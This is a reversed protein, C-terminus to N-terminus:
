EFRMNAIGATVVQYEPPSDAFIMGVSSQDFHIKGVPTYHLEFILDSGAPIKKASGPPFISPIDGPAYAALHQRKQGTHDDLYVIIHHVVARDGPRPEIARVWRDETFHTKVQFHQYPLTGDAKVTYPEPMTFVVDPTGITWGDPWAKPAPEKSPDGQPAGQDAWAILTAREQPSLHRDNSFHGFRPDAHWPPMRRDEVVERISVAWRRADDYTRLSFPAVQGPRHCSQCRKQIIPAVQESYTVASLSDPDIPPELRDYTEVLSESAPRIRPLSARSKTSPREIPCGFVSTSSNTVPQGAIVAEIATSLYPRVPQNRRARISYQDDIAGRYRLLGDADIVLAECTREAQLQDAALSEPSDKLVRFPISFRRAHDRVQEASESANANIALFVVGRDRFTAELEALRPMYLDGIPCQIGTFVIVTAKSGRVDDLAVAK